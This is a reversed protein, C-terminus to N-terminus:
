LIKCPVQHVTPPTKTTDIYFCGSDSSVSSDEAEPEATALPAAVVVFLMAAILLVKTQTKM